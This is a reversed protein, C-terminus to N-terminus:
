RRTQSRGDIIRKLERRYEQEKLLKLRTKEQEKAQDASTRKLKELQYIKEEEAQRLQTKKKEDIQRKRISNIDAKLKLQSENRRKDRENRLIAVKEQELRQMEELYQDHKQVEHKRKEKEKRFNEITKRFHIANELKIQEERKKAEVGIGKGQAQLVKDLLREKNDLEQREIKRKRNAILFEERARDRQAFYVKKKELIQSEEANIAELRLIEHKVNNAKMKRKLAQSDAIQQRINAKVSALINTKHEQERHERQIKQQRNHEWLEDFRTDEENLKAQLRKKYAVQKQLGSVFANRAQRSNNEKFTKDALLRQQELKAKVILKRKEEEELTIAEARAILRDSVEEQTESMAKLELDYKTKEM